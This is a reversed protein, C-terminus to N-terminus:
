QEVTKDGVIQYISKIFASQARPIATLRVKMVNLENTLVAVTNTTEATERAIALILKTVDSREIVGVGVNQAEESSLIETLVALRTKEGKSLSERYWDLANADVVRHLLCTFLNQIFALDDEQTLLEQETFIFRHFRNDVSDRKISKTVDCLEDIETNLEDIIAALQLM